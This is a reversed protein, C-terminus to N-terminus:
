EYEIRSLHRIPINSIGTSTDMYCPSMFDSFWRVSQIGRVGCSQIGERANMAEEHSAMKVIAQSNMYNCFNQVSGFQAFFSRALYKSFSGDVVITRSLVNIYGSNPSGETVLHLASSVAAMRGDGQTQDNDEAANTTEPVSSAGEDKSVM